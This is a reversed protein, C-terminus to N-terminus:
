SLYIDWPDSHCPYTGLFTQHARSLDDLLAYLHAEDPHLMVLKLSTVSPSFPDWLISHLLAIWARIDCM